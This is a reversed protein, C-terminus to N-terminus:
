RRPTSGGSSGLAEWHSRRRLLASTAVAEAPLLCLAAAALWALASGQGGGRGETGEANRAYVSGNPDVLVDTRAGVATGAFPGHHIELPYRQRKQAFGRTSPTQERLAFYGREQQGGPLTYAVRKIGNVNRQVSAVTAGEVREMAFNQYARDVSPGLIMMGPVALVVAAAGIALAVRATSQTLLVLLLVAALAILWRSFHGPFALSSSWRPHLAWWVGGALTLQLALWLLLRLPWPMGRRPTRAATVPSDSM